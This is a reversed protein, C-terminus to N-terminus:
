ALLALYVSKVAQSSSSFNCNCCQCNVEFVYACSLFAEVLVIMGDCPLDGSQHHWLLFLLTHISAVRESGIVIAPKADPRARTDLTPSAVCPCVHLVAHVLLVEMMQLTRVEKLKCRERKRARNQTDRKFNHSPALCGALLTRPVFVEKLICTLSYGRGSVQKRYTCLRLSPSAVPALSNHESSCNV